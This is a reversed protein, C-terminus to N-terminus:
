IAGEDKLEAIQAANYGLEKLIDHTDAGLAPPPTKVHPAKGDLKAGIGVL